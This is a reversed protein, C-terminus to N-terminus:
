FERALLMKRYEGPSYHKYKKFVRNFYSLSSFGVDNAIKLLNPEKKLMKEAKCVRVFNVYDMPTTGVMNKFLRCFYQENFNFRESLQSTSLQEGCNEDIYELVPRIKNIEDRKKHIEDSIIGKRRLSSLLLLMYGYIYDHWYQNKGLYEDVIRSMCRSIEESEADDKKFLRVPTDTISTFRSMYKTVSEDQSVRFQLLTTFYHSMVEYTSHPVYKNIFLIDGKEIVYEGDLTVCKYRGEDVRLFEYENHIHMESVLESRIECPSDKDFPPM